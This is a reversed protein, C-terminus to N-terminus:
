RRKYHLPVFPLASVQMAQLRGRLEALLQTGRQALAVPVYGM